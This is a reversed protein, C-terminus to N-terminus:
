DREVKTVLNLKKLVKGAGPGGEPSFCEGIGIRYTCSGKGFHTGTDRYATKEPTGLVDEAGIGLHRLEVRKPAVM